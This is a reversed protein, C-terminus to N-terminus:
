LQSGMMLRGVGSIPPSKLQTRWQLALVTPELPCDGPGRPRERLPEATPAQSHDEPTKLLM